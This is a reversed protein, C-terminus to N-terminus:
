VISLLIVLKPLNVVIFRFNTMTWISFAIFDRRRYSTLKKAADKLTAKVTENLLQQSM